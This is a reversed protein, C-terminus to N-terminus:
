RVQGKGIGVYRNGTRQLFTGIKFFEAHAQELFGAFRTEVSSDPFKFKQKFHRSIRLLAQRRFVEEGAM